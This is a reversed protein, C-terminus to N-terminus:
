EVPAFIAPHLHRGQSANRPEPPSVFEQGTKKAQGAKKTRSSRQAAYAIAQAAFAELIPFCELTYRTEPAAVTALLLTRLTVYGIMAARFRPWFFMGALAALMYLLNLAGYALAFLTEGRHQSYQWWRLEINLMEARPRLWMDAVRLLPLELFTRWPHNRERERALAAFGADVNPTLSARHNYEDFLRRTEQYEAPTDFARSPMADIDAHDGPINWYIEYTSAFDVLWTKTWREFGPAAFEGPDAASRPALPQFVHFTRWNRVTWSVFPLLALVGGTVALRVSRRLGISRRGYYPLAIFLVIALLAGDPRLLAAFSGSFALALLPLWGGRDLVCVFTYFGLAVCFVSLTETLPMAVYNATFPCLVALWLAIEAARASCVRRVFGATLLCASLDIVAQLNLVARYNEIGFLKFCLGLFAPYGPLRILTPAIIASGDNATGSFGYIGHVLWNKAIDGYLLSDGQVQPLAHIFWLRLAAGCAVAFLVSIVPRLRFSHM